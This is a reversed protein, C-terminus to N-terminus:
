VTTPASDPAQSKNFKVHNAIVWSEPRSLDRQLAERCKFDMTDGLRSDNTFKIYM